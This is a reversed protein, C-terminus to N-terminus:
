LEIYKQRFLRCYSSVIDYQQTEVIEIGFDDKAFTKMFNLWDLTKWNYNASSPHHRVVLPVFHKNKLQLGKLIKENYLQEWFEEPKTDNKLRNCFSCAFAINGAEQLKPTFHEFEPKINSDRNDFNLM